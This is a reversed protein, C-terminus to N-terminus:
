YVNAKWKRNDFDYEYTSLPLLPDSYILEPKGERLRYALKWRERLLPDVGAEALSAPYAGTRAQHASVAAAAQEAAVRAARDWYAQMAAASVLVALWIAILVARRGREEPKFVMRALSYIMWIGFLPVLLALIFAAGKPLTVALVAAVLLLTKVVRARQVM